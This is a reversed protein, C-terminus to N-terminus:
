KFLVIDYGDSDEDIQLMFVQSKNNKLGSITKVSYKDDDVDYSYVVAKSDVTCYDTGIKVDNGDKSTVTGYKASLDTGSYATDDFIEKLQNANLPTMTNGDYYKATVKNDGSEGDWQVVAAVDTIEGSANVEFAAFTLYNTVKNVLATAEDNEIVKEDDTYAKYEKGDAFGEVYQVKDGDANEADSIKNVVAFVYDSTSADSERVVFAAIKGDENTVVYAYFNNDSDLDTIKATDYDTGDKTFVVADSEVSYGGFVTGSKSIKGQVYGAKGIGSITTLSSDDATFEWESNTANSKIMNLEDVEGDKNTDFTVLSGVTPTSDDVSTVKDGDVDYKVEKGDKTLLKIQANNIGDKAKTGIVIAYNDTSGSDKDWKSIDGDFNLYATGEDGLAPIADAATKDAMNYVTGDITYDDGDVKSVKGKVTKTGVTVKVIKGDSVTANAVDNEGGDSSTNGGSTDGGSTDGGSTGGSTTNDTEIADSNSELYVSVVNDVAIKDLSEVGDLIFMNTDIKKDDNEVFAWGNLENDETDLMDAEYLFADNAVWKTISYVTKIKKSSLDVALTYTEDDALNLEIGDNDMNLFHKAGTLASTNLTYTTDGVKFETQGKKFEGTLLTSKTEAIAIVDGDSNKFAKVYSGVSDMTNVVSDEALDYTYVAFGDDDAAESSVLSCDLYVELVTKSREGNVYANTTKGDKDVAVPYVTLTNYVVQAASARDVTSEATVDDYLGLRKGLNLTITNGPRFTGDEYGEIIGKAACFGVYGSAWGYGSMDSFQNADYAKLASEPIDLMRTILAAYEARTVSQAPKYTGDEYGTIIGLDCNAVIADYNANGNIDSLDKGQKATDAAFAMSFSSLVLALALVWSLVKKM